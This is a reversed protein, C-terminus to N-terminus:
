FKGFLSFRDYEALVPEREFNLAGDRFFLPDGEVRGDGRERAKQARQPLFLHEGFLTRHEDDTRDGRFVRLFEATEALVGRPSRRPQVLRDGLQARRENRGFHQFFRRAAHVAVEGFFKGVDGEDVAFIETKKRAPIEVLAANQRKQGIGHRIRLPANRARVGDKRPKSRERPLRRRADGRRDGARARDRAHEDAPPLINIGHFRRAGEFFVAFLRARLAGVFRERGKEWGFRVLDARANEARLPTLREFRAGYMDVLRRVRVVFEGKDGRHDFLFNQVRSEPVPVHGQEKGVRLVVGDKQFLGKGLVVDRIKRVYFLAGGLM